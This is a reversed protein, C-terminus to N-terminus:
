KCIDYMLYYLWTKEASPTMKLLVNQLYFCCFHIVTYYNVRMRFSFISGRFLYSPIPIFGYSDRPGDLIVIDLLVMYHSIVTM